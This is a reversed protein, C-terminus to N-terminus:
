NIAYTARWVPPANRWAKVVATATPEHYFGTELDANFWEPKLYLWYGSDDEFWVEDIKDPNANVLTQLTKM